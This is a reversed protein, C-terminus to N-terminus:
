RDARHIPASTRWCPLSAIAVTGSRPVPFRRVGCSNRHCTGFACTPLSRPYACSRSKLCHERRGARRSRLLVAGRGAPRVRRRTSSRCFRPSSSRRSQDAPPCRSSASLGPAKRASRRRASRPSRRWDSSRVGCCTPSARCSADATALRAAQREPGEDNRPAETQRDEAQQREAAPRGPVPTPSASPISSVSSPPMGPTAGAPRRRPRAEVGQRGPHTKGTPEPISSAASM